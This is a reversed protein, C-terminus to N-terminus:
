APDSTTAGSTSLLRATAAREPHSTRPNAVWAEAVVPLLSVAARTDVNHLFSRLFIRRATGLLVSKAKGVPVAATALIIWTKALDASPGRAANQWDIPMVGQRTVLVNDPHLDLHLLTHEDDFPTPLWNPGAIAHLQNHLGALIRAEAALTWPRLAMETLMSHGVVRQMVIDTRDADYVEPVPV